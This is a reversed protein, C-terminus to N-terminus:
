VVGRHVEGGGNKEGAQKNLKHGDMTASWDHLSNWWTGTMGAIDCSQSQVSKRKRKNIRNCM